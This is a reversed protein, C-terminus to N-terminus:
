IINQCFKILFQNLLIPFGFHSKKKRKKKQRRKNTCSYSQFLKVKEMTFIMYFLSTGAFHNSKWSLVTKFPLYNNNKNYIIEQQSESLNQTTKTQKLLYNSYSKSVQKCNVELCFFLIDKICNIQVLTRSIAKVIIVSATAEKKLLCIFLM